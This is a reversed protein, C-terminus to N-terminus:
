LASEMPTGINKVTVCHRDSQPCMFVLISFLVNNQHKNFLLIVSYRHPKKQKKHDTYYLIKCQYINELFTYVNM